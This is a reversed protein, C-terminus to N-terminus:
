FIKFLILTNFLPLFLSSQIFLSFVFLVAPFTTELPQKIDANHFM